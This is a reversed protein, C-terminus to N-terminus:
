SLFSDAKAAKPEEESTWDQCGDFYKLLKKKEEIKVQSEEEEGGKTEVFPQSYALTM